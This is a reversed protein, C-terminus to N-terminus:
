FFIGSIMKDAVVHRALQQLHDPFDKTLDHLTLENRLIKTHYEYYIFGNHLHVQRGM